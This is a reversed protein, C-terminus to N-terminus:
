PTKIATYLGTSSKIFKPIGGAGIIYADPKDVPNEVIFLNPSFLAVV